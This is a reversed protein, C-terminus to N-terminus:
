IYFLISISHSEKGRELEPFCPSILPLVPVEAVPDGARDNTDSPPIRVDAWNEFICNEACM